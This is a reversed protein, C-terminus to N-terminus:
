WKILLFRYGYDQHRHMTVRYGLAKLWDTVRYLITNRIRVNNYHFPHFECQYYGDRMAKEINKEIQAKANRLGDQVMFDFKDDTNNRAYNADFM